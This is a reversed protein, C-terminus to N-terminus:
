CWGDSTGHSVRELTKDQGFLTVREFLRAVILDDSVLEAAVNYTKGDDPNYFRGGGWLNDGLPRLATIITMGCLQRDRLAPDPNKRDLVLDGARDRPVEAM